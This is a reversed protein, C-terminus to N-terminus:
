SAMSAAVFFTAFGLAAGAITQAVTHRRLRVRSWAIIPVGILLPLSTGALSWVLTAIGAAAASHVSIKWWLTIGFIVVTQLWLGGAVVVMELPAGGLALLLWALGGCAITFILPRTREERLQVDLDSVRGRHILWFLYLIPTLIALFVYVGAWRWARSSSGTSAILAMATAALVPPSGVQSIMYALFGDWARPITTDVAPPAAPRSEAEQPLRSRVEPTAADAHAEKHVAMPVSVENLAMTARHAKKDDM